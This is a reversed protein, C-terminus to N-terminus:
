FIKLVKGDLDKPYPIGLLSAVTPAFDVTAARSSDRSARIGPGMFIMPVHRDYWYMQGHGSGRPAGYIGPRYRFEVGQRSFRGAMRGPFMSRQQLRAFSDTQARALEEHTWADAIIPLKELGAALERAAISKNPASDARARLSDLKASEAATLRHGYEGRAVLDEPADLVGHDASLTMTWRGKGVSGDLFEFFDGLARDLRLLNDLQERSNPGFRHGIRDTASVSVNLFDPADDRGLELATVMTEAMEITAKDVYPTNEWWLWFPADGAEGAFTHPFFTHVGDFENDATDRNAKAFASVPRSLDWSTESRHAQLKGTHYATVWDPDSNRYYTSTVFRGFAGEFWYVYASRVHAAPQIAGRDKGSVSAIKSRPNASVIWEALGPRMLHAPSAGRAEAVGVIKVTTDDINEVPVWQAGPRELWLNGIIGHRSPYVGTSLSAHGPATSTGAHDHAAKTFVRGEDHLRKFGGSFLDAYKDLLDSRLQDVVVLVVLGPRNPDPAPSANEPTTACSVAVAELAAVLGITLLGKRMM